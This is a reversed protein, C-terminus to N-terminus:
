IGNPMDWGALEAGIDLTDLKKRFGIIRFRVVDDVHLWLESLLFTPVFSSLLLLYFCVTIM